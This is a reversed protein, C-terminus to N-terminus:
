DVRRRVIPPPAPMAERPAGTSLVILDLSAGHPKIVYDYGVLVRVLIKRLPGEYTATVRRNLATGSYHLDFRARLVALIEEITADHVELQINEVPGQVRIQACAPHSRLVALLVVAISIPIFRIGRM